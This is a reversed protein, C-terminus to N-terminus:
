SASQQSGRIMRGIVRRALRAAPNCSDRSGYSKGDLAGQVRISETDTLATRLLTAADVVKQCIPDSQRHPNRLMRRIVAEAHRLQISAVDHSETSDGVPIGRQEFFTSFAGTLESSQGM